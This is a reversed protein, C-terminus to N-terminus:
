RGRGDVDVPERLVEVRRDHLDGAAGVGDLDAVAREDLDGLGVLLALRDHAVLGLRDDVRHLLEGRLPRAVDQDEQGALPLDAVGSVGERAQLPELHHREVRPEGSGLLVLDELWVGPAPHHQGGVDGLGRQGDGADPVDHVGADRPDRAVGRARLHLPQRDLRDALGRGVLAGTAAAPDGGADRDPEVGLLVELGARLEGLGLDQAGVQGRHDQLHGRQAEAVQAPEREDLRGVPAVDGGAPLQELLEVGDRGVLPEGLDAPAQGPQRDVRPQAPHDELGLPEAAEALYEDDGRSQRELVGPLPRRLHARLGVLLVRAELVLAGVEEGPEVEPAVHLCCCRSSLLLAKRRIHM